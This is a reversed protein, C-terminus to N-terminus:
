GSAFACLRDAGALILSESVALGTIGMQHRGEWFQEECLINGTSLDFGCLGKWRANLFVVDDVVIPSSDQSDGLDYKWVRRGTKSDLAYLNGDLAGVYLMGAASACASGMGVAHLLPDEPTFSWVPELTQANLAQIKGKGRNTSIVLLDDVITPGATIRGDTPGRAAVTFDSLDVRMVERGSPLYLATGDSCAGINERPDHSGWTEFIKEGTVANLGTTKEDSFVVMEGICLPCGILAVQLEGGACEEDEAKWNEAGTSLNLCVALSTSGLYINDGSIAPWGMAMGPMRYSWVESGDALDVAHVVSHPSFRSWEACVAVGNSVVIGGKPNVAEESRWVLQLPPKVVATSAGTRLNNGGATLWESDRGSQERRAEEYIM